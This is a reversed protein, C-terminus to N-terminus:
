KRYKEGVYKSYGENAWGGGKLHFNGGQPPRHTDVSGCEPCAAGDRDAISRMEDWDFGCNKCQYYYSPM